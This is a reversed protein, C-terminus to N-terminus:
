DQLTYVSLGDDTLARDSDVSVAPVELLDLCFYCTILVFSIYLFVQLPLKFNMRSCIDVDQFRPDTAVPMTYHLHFVEHQELHAITLTLYM